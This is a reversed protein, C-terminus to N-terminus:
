LSVAPVTCRLVATPQVLLLLATVEFRPVDETVDDIDTPDFEVINTHKNLYDAAKYADLSGQPVYM